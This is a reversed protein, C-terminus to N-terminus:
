ANADGATPFLVPKFTGAARWVMGNLLCAAAGKAGRGTVKTGIPGIRGTPVVEETAADDPTDFVLPSCAIGDETPGETPVTSLVRSDLNSAM